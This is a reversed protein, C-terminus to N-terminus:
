WKAQHEEVCGILRDFSIREGDQTRVTGSFHGFVQQLTSSLIGAQNRVIRRDFPTFAIQVDSSLQSLIQWPQLLNTRDYTFVVDEELKYVRNDLFLANENVGTGDTWGAGLNFGFAKQDVEGSCTAWNWFSRYPWIGRGVDLAAFSVGEKCHFERDGIRVLGQVPLCNQKSTFHFRQQDWPIVVNLSEYADPQQIVFQASIWPDRGFSNVVLNRAKRSVDQKSSFSLRPHSFTFDDDACPPLECGIGFPISLQEEWFQQREYDYVYTFAIGIYDLHILTVNFLFVDSTILWHNWKKKRLWSGKLNCIHKPTRSWGISNKNLQGSKECLYVSETLEM